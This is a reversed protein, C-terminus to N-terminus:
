RFSVEGMIRDSPKKEEHNKIYNRKKNISMNDARGGERKYPRHPDLIKNEMTSLVGGGAGV